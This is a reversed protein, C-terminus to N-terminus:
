KKCCNAIFKFSSMRRSYNNSVPVRENTSTDHKGLKGKARKTEESWGIRLHLYQGLEVRPEEESQINLKM